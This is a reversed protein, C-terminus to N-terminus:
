EELECGTFYFDAAAKDKSFCFYTMECTSCVKGDFTISADIFAFNRKMERIHGRIELVVNDGTPIPAKYKMNLATTMGATQLKRNVLWGGPQDPLM